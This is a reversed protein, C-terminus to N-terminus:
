PAEVVEPSEVKSDALVATMLDKRIEAEVAPAGTMLSKSAEPFETSSHVVLVVSAWDSRQPGSPKLIEPPKLMSTDEALPADMVTM